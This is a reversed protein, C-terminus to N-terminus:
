FSTECKKPNKELDNKKSFLSLLNVNKGSYLQKWNHIEQGWLSQALLFLQKWNKLSHKSQTRSTNNDILNLIDSIQVIWFFEKLLIVFVKILINIYTFWYFKLCFLFDIL